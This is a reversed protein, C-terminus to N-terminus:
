KVRLKHEIAFRVACGLMGMKGVVEWLGENGLIVKAYAKLEAETPQEYGPMDM